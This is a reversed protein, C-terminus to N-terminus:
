NVFLDSHGFAALSYSCLCFILIRFQSWVSIAEAEEQFYTVSVVSYLVSLFMLFFYLNFGYSLSHRDRRWACNGPSM